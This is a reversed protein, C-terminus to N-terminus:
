IDQLGLVDIIKFFGSTKTRLWVAAAIAGKAFVARDLAKHSIEIHEDIDAFLARHEGIINGCRISTFGITKDSRPGTLRNGPYVAHQNFNWKMVKAIAEGMALATGSPSDVKNRHHSEIIEIDACEGMVQAIKEVLKLMLAAGISFNSSCVIPIEQAAHKILMIESANLGTTGIVMAKYNKKCFSLYKVTGKPSTFDILVDFNNIVQDLRDTISIGLASHNVLEGADHGILCSSSHVVVAGLTVGPTRIISEILQKGMRGDSGVVGIRIINHM